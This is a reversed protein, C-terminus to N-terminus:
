LNAPGSCLKIIHPLLASIPSSKGDVEKDFDDVIQVSKILEIHREEGIESDLVIDIASERSDLPLTALNPARVIMDFTGDPFRLLVYRWDSAEIAIPEGNVVLELLRNWQKPQKAAYFEWGQCKPAFAVIRRTQQLLTDDGAPSIVFSSNSPNQFGPGLEWGFEGLSAVRSDLEVIPESNQFHSGFKDCVSQFWNWFTQIDYEVPGNM